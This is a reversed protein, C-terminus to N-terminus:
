YGGMASSYAFTSLYDPLSRMLRRLDAENEPTLEENPKPYNLNRYDFFGNV